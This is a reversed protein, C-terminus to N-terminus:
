AVARDLSRASEARLAANGVDDAYLVLVAGLFVAIVRARLEALGDVPRAYAELLAARAPGVFAGYAVALDLAPDGVCVDGWDIVGTARGADDVLLHRAHLDGHCVATRPSPPLGAADDLLRHVEPTAQWLGADDLEELRRRTAAVRFGMDARRNPDVPLGPGIRSRLRPAHLDHLFAGISTALEVRREDPLDADALERGPLFPAGAWPWPYGADPAGVWRPEPVPLPLNPALRPLVEVEREILAVAVQRRPFRFAWREAVVFVSNDWGTALRRIEAGALEPFQTGILERAREADIEVEADWLPM